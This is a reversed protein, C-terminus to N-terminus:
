TYDNYQIIKYIYMMTFDICENSRDSGLIATM